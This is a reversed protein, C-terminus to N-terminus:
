VGNSSRKLPRNEYKKFAAEAQERRRTSLWDYIQEIFWKCDKYNSIYFAYWDKNGQRGNYPGRLTGIETIEYIRELPWKDTMNIGIKISTSKSGKSISESCSIYGEGEYIGACYATEEPTM